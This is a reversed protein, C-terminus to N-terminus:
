EGKAKLYKKENVMTKGNAQYTAGRLEAVMRAITSDEAQARRVEADVVGQADSTTMGEAEYASVRAAYDAPETLIPKM